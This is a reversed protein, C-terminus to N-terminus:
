KSIAWCLSNRIEKPVLNMNQTTVILCAVAKKDKPNQLVFPPLLLMGM